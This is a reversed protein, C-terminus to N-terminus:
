PSVAVEHLPITAKGHLHCAVARRAGLDTLAPDHERCIDM